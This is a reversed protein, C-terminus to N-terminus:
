KTSSKKDFSSVIEVTSLYRGAKPNYKPLGHSDAASAGSYGTVVTVIHWQFQINRNRSPPVPPKRCNKNLFNGFSVPLWFDQRCCKQIPDERALSIYTTASSDEGRKECGGKCYRTVNVGRSPNM